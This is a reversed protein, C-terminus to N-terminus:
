ASVHAFQAVYVASLIASLGVILAAASFLTWYTSRVTRLKHWESHLIDSALRGSPKAHTVVSTNPIQLVVMEPWRSQRLILLQHPHSKQLRHLLYEQGTNSVTM